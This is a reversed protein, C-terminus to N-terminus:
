RKRAVLIARHPAPYGEETRNPDSQDLFAEYSPGPNWPTTRQEAPLHAQSSVVEIGEFKARELMNRMAPVTPVFFVNRMRAYRERPFLCLEDEGPLVISELVLFGGPRMVEHLARLLQLPEPHHYLIGMCLVTDFAARLHVLEQWGWMEFALNPVQACHQILHFQWHWRAVPDIGLMFDPAQAALRFLYYGNNCGVDLVTKGRQDPLAPLLRAWKYDSRWEADIPEGLLRFPGKKWPLIARAAAAIALRRPDDPDLTPGALVEAGDPGLGGDLEPLAPWLARMTQFPKWDLWARRERRCHELAQRAAEDRAYDWLRSHPPFIVTVEDAACLAADSRANEGASM